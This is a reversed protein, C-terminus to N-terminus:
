PHLGVRTWGPDRGEVLTQFEARNAPLGLVGARAPIIARVAAVTPRGPTPCRGPTCRGAALPRNM